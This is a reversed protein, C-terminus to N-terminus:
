VHAFYDTPDDWHWVRNCWQHWTIKTHHLYRSSKSVSKRTPLMHLIKRHCRMEVSQIIRQLEAMVAAHWYGGTKRAELRMDLFLQKHMKETSCSNRSVVSRRHSYRSAPTRWRTTPRIYSLSLARRSSCLAFRCRRESTMVCMCTNLCGLEM